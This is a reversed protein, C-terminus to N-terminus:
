RQCHKLSEAISELAVRSRRLEDSGDASAPRVGFAGLFVGLSLAISAVAIIRM